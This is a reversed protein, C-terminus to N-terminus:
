YPKSGEHQCSAGWIPGWAYSASWVANLTCQPLPGIGYGNSIWFTAHGWTPPTGAEYRFGWDKVEAHCHGRLNDLFGRGWDDDWSGYTDFRFYWDEYTYGNLATRSVWVHCWAQAGNERKAFAPTNIGREKLEQASPAPVAAASALSFLATLGFLKSLLM